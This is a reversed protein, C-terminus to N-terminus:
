GKIKLRSYNAKYLTEEPQEKWKQWKQGNSGCQAEWEAKQIPDQQRSEIEKLAENLCKVFDYGLDKVNTALRTFDGYYELMKPSLPAEVSGSKALAGVMFVFRDCFSDIYENMYKDKDHESVAEEYLALALEGEEIEEKYNEIEASDDYTFNGRVLNWKLVRVQYDFLPYTNVEYNYGEKLCSYINGLESQKPMLQVELKDEKVVEQIPEETIEEEIVLPQTEEVKIEETKVEKKFISKM